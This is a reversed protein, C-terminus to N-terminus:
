PALSRLILADADACTPAPSTASLIAAARGDAAKTGVEARALAAQAAATDAADRAQLASLATSQNALAGNLRGLSTQCAGLDATAAKAEAQWARHTAPDTLALRASALDAKAHHLRATQLGALGLLAALGIAGWAQRSGLLTLLFAPM